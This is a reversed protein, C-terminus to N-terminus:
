RRQQEILADLLGNLLAANELFLNEADLMEEATQIFVGNKLDESEHRLM